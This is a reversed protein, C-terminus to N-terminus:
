RVPTAQVKESLLSLQTHKYGQNIGQNLGAGQILGGLTLKHPAAIM